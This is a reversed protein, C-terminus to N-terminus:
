VTTSGPPVVGVSGGVVGGPSGPSQASGAHSAEVAYPPPLTTECSPWTHFDWHHVCPSSGPVVPSHPAQRSWPAQQRGGSRDPPPSSPGQGGGPRVVARGSPAAGRAARRVGHHRAARAQGSGLSHSPAAIRVLQVPVDGPPTVNRPQRGDERHLASRGPAGRTRLSPVAHA